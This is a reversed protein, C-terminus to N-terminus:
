DQLLKGRTEAIRSTLATFDTPELSAGEARSLSKAGLGKQLKKVDEELTELDKAADAKQEKLKVNEKLALAALLRDQLSRFVAVSAVGAVLSGAIFKAGTAFEVIWLVAIAAGAGIIVHALVGLDFLFSTTNPSAPLSRHPFEFEGKLLLLEYILGGFAGLLSAYLLQIWFESSTLDKYVTNQVAPPKKASDSDKDAKPDPKQDPSDTRAAPPATTEAAAAPDGPAQAGGQAQGLSGLTVLLFATLLLARAVM